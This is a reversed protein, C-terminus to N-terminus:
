GEGGEHMITMFRVTAPRRLVCSSVDDALTLSSSTSASYVDSDAWMGGRGDRGGGGAKSFFSPEMGKLRARMHRECYARVSPSAYRGFSATATYSSGGLMYIVGGDSARNMVISSGSIEVLSWWFPM